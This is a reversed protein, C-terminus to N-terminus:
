KAREKVLSQFADKGKSIGNQRADETKVLDAFTMVSIKIASPFVLVWCHVSINQTISKSSQQLHNHKLLLHHHHFTTRFFRRDCPLLHLQFAKGM